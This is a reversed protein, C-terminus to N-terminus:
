MFVAMVSSQSAILALRGSHFLRQFLIISRQVSRSGRARTTMSEMYRSREARALAQRRRPWPYTGRQSIPQRVVNTNGSTPVTAHGTRAVNRAFLVKLALRVHDICVRRRAPSLPKGIRRGELDAQRADPRRGRPPTPRERGRAGEDAEGSGVEPRWVRPALSLLQALAVGWGM